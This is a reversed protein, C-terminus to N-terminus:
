SASGTSTTSDTPATTDTTAPPDVTPTTDVPASTTDTTTTSTDTTTGPNPLGTEDTVIANTPPTENALSAAIAADDAAAQAAVASAADQAAQNLPELRPSVYPFPLTVITPNDTTGAVAELGLDSFLEAVVGTFTYTYVTDDPMSSVTGTKATGALPSVV